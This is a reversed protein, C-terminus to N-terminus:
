VIFFKESMNGIFSYKFEERKVKIMYCESKFFWEIILYGKMSFVMHVVFSHCM